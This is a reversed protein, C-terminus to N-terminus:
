RKVAKVARLVDERFAGPFREDAMCLAILELASVARELLSRTPPNPDTM